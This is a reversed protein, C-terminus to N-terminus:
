RCGRVHCWVLGKLLPQLGIVEGGGLECPTHLVVPAVKMPDELAIETWREVQRQAYLPLSPAM